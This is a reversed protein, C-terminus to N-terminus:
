QTGKGGKSGEKREEWVEGDFGFGRVRVRVCACM